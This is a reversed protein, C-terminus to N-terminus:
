VPSPLLQEVTYWCVAGDVLDLRVTNPRSTVTALDMAESLLHFPEGRPSSHVLRYVVTADNLLAYLELPRDHEGAVEGTLQLRCAQGEPVLSSRVNRLFAACRIELAVEGWLGGQDTQSEVDVTLVNRPQLLATIEFEGQEAGPEYRGLFQHNLRVEAIGEAAAFIIWVHEHPDIQRPQGFRRIFRVRGAFGALGGDRWRCPLTMRGAPPPPLAAEGSRQLPEYDWPGRLRIRYPYV